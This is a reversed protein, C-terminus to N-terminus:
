RIVQNLIASTSGSFTTGGGYTATIPHTGIALNTGTNNTAGTMTFTAVGSTNLTATGKTVTGDKFIVTGTPIATGSSPRVTATFVVTRGAANGTSRAPNLSSTLGTTTAVIVPPAVVVVSVQASASGAFTTTGGFVASFVHTGPALTNAPVTFTASGTPAITAVGLTTTGDKFTVSGSPIPASAAVISTLVVSENSFISSASAALTTTTTLPQPVLTVPLTRSGGGSSTVTISSSPVTTNVVLTGTADLIGLPLTPLSTSASLAPKLSADSSSAQISLTGSAEDFRASAVVVEDVLASERTITASNPATATIRIFAPLTTADTPLIAAFFRGSIPDRTLTTTPIGAGTATLTAEGSSRAFVSIKATAPSTRSYSTRDITLASAVTGNYLKGMVAFQDTEIVDIGAGGVNPGQLRFINTNFPSGVVTHTINPDGVYGTPPASEAPDWRLFPGINTSTLVSDFACGAALCGQDDTFNIVGAPDAQFTKVGYPYTLVYTEGPTVGEVRLRFRAFVIQQGELVAGTAFAGELAMTLVARNTAVGGIGSIVSSTLNYFLEDPFNTPFVIESADGAALSGALACPDVVPNTPDNPTVLCPELAVGSRDQYHQPFGHAPNVAGVTSLGTGQAYGLDVRLCFSLLVTVFFIIRAPASTIM